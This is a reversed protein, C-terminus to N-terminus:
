NLKIKILKLFPRISSVVVVKLGGLNLRYIDGLESQWKLFQELASDVHFQKVNGWLWNGGGPVSPLRHFSLLKCAALEASENM